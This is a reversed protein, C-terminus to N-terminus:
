FHTFPGPDDAGGEHRRNYDTSNTLTEVEVSDIDEAKVPHDRVIKLAACIPYGASGATGFGPKLNVADMHWKQGLGDLLQPHPEAHGVPQESDQGYLRALRSWPTNRSGFRRSRKLM